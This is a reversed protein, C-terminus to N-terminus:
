RGVEIDYLSPFLASLICTDPEHQVTHTASLTFLSVTVMHFNTQLCHCPVVCLWPHIGSTCYSYPVRDVQRRGDGKGVLCSERQTSANGTDFRSVGDDTGAM